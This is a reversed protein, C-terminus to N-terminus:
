TGGLVQEWTRTFHNNPAPILPPEFKFYLNDIFDLKELITWGGRKRLQQQVLIAQGPLM